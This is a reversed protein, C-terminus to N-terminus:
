AAQQACLEGFRSGATNKLAVPPGSEAVIGENMVVVRDCHMITDLRHAITLVTTGTLGDRLTRQILADTEADVASTAEDLLLIRSGRLLARAICFLQRQGVSFNGGDESVEDDLSGVGNDGTM